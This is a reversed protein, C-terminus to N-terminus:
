IFDAATIGESARIEQMLKEADQNRPITLKIVACMEKESNDTEKEIREFEINEVTANMRQLIEQIHELNRGTYQVYIDRRFFRKTYSRENEAMGEEIFLILFTTLVGGEYFGAGYCLGVIAITWLGAATTLGRVRQGTTIITGAGIFGVGAVVQAGIRAMDANLGLCTTLYQGTMTAMCAGMCLLIHTRFGAANHRCARIIGVAGASIVVLVIRLAITGVTLVRLGNFMALM